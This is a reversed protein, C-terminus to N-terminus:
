GNGLLKRTNKELNVPLRIQNTLTGGDWHLLVM